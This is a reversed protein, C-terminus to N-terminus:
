TNQKVVQSVQLKVETGSGIVSHIELIGGIELVREQMILLGFKNSNASVTRNVDFGCGNDIVSILLSNDEGELIIKVFNAGSHKGINNLAEKIINLIQDAVKSDFCDITNTWKDDIQFKIGCRQQFLLAQRELEMLFDSLNRDDSSGEGRMAIITERVANQPAQVVETLRELSHYATKIQDQKLYEMATQTQLNVFGLIQGMNDHLDRAMKEREEKVAIEQQKKLLKLETKKKQTIDRLILLKGVLNGSDNKILHCSIDYFSQKKGQVYELETSEGGMLDLKKLEPWEAFFDNAQCGIAQLAEFNFIHVAAPNIDVIRAQLDLVVIGDQLSEMIRTRAIPVLDFLKNSFLARAIFLSSIGWAVSTLDVCTWLQLVYVANVCMVFLMSFAIYRYQKGFLPAKRSFFWLARAVSFFNLGDSYVAHVWFWLGHRSLGPYDVESHRLYFDTWILHHFSDTLAFVVTLTPIICLLLIRRRNVWHQMDTIQMVMITWAVPGFAYAIYGLRALFHKTQFDSVSIELATEFCWLSSFLLVVIFAAVGNRHRSKLVYFFLFLNMALTAIFPWIFPTYLYTM